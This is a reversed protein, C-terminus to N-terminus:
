HDSYRKDFVKWCAEIKGNQQPTYPLSRTIEIGNVRLVEKFYGCFEGGQDCRGVL